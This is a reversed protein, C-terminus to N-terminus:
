QSPTTSSKHQQQKWTGFARLGFPHHIYQHIEACYQLYMSNIKIKIKIHPAGGPCSLGKLSPKKFFIAYMAFNFNDNLATTWISSFMKQHAKIFYWCIISYCNELSFSKHAWVGIFFWYLNITYSGNKFPYQETHNLTVTSFQNLLTM